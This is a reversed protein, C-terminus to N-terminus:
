CSYRNDGARGGTGGIWAGFSEVHDAEDAVVVDVECDGVLSIGVGTGEGSFKNVDISDILSTDM